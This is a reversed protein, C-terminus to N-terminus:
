PLLLFRFSFTLTQLPGAQRDREARGQDLRAFNQVVESISSNHICGREMLLHNVDFFEFDGGDDEKIRVM